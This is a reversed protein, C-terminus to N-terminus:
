HLIHCVTDRNFFIVGVFPTRHVGEVGGPDAM